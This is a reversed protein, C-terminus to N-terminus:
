VAVELITDMRDKAEQQFINAYDTILSQDDEELASFPINHEACEILLKGIYQGDELLYSRDDSEIQEETKELLQLFGEAAGVYREVDRQQSALSDLAQKQEPVSNELISLQSSEENSLEEQIKKALVLRNLLMKDKAYSANAKAWEDGLSQAQKAWSAILEEFVFPTLKKNYLRTLVRDLREAANKSLEPNSKILDSAIRILFLDDSSLDDVTLASRLKKDSMNLLKQTARLRLYHEFDTPESEIAMGLEKKAIEFDNIASALELNHRQDQPIVEDEAFRLEAQHQKALVLEEETLLDNAQEMDDQQKNKDLLDERNKQWRQALNIAWKIAADIKKAIPSKEFATLAGLGKELMVLASRMWPYPALKSANLLATRIHQVFPKVVKWAKKVGGIFVEAKEAMWGVVKGAVNKATEYASSVANSVTSVASSVFNCANSFWGM